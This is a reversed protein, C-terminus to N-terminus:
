CDRDVNNAAFNGWLEFLAFLMEPAISWNITFSRRGKLTTSFAPNLFRNATRSGLYLTGELCCKESLANDASYSCFFISTFFSRASAEATASVISPHVLRAVSDYM